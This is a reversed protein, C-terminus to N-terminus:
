SSFFNLTELMRELFELNRWSGLEKLYTILSGYHQIQEGVRWDHTEKIFRDM